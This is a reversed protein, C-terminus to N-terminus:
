PLIEVPTGVPVLAFIEKMEPNNLAMCGWTWDSGSGGGHLFVDGGLQTNAPPPVGRREADTIRRHEEPSLLGAALGRDADARNPYSVQLSLYYQSRPNKLCIRYRGEPTRRDGQRRKPGVPTSGLGIKYVRVLRGQSFLQLTRLSKLVVIKADPLPASLGPAGGAGLLLPLLVAVGIWTRPRM